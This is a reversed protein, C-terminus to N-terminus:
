TSLPVSVTPLHLVDRPNGPMFSNVHLHSIILSFLGRQPSSLLSSAAASPSSVESPFAPLTRGSSRWPPSCLCHGLASLGLKPSHCICSSHSVSVCPSLRLLFQQEAKLTTLAQWCQTPNTRVLRLARFLGHPSRPVSGPGEAGVRSAPGSCPMPIGCTQYAGWGRSNQPHGLHVAPAPWSCLLSSKESDM